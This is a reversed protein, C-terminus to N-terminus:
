RWRRAVTVEYPPDDPHYGYALDLFADGYTLALYAWERETAPKRGTAFARARQAALDWLQEVPVGRAAARMGAQDGVQYAKKLKAM